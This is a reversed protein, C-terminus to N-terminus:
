RTLSEHRKLPSVVTKNQYRFAVEGDRIYFVQVNIRGQPTTVPILDGEAYAKGNVVALSVQGTSISTVNFDQPTIVPAPPPTPAVVINTKAKVDTAVVGPKQWGIDWFPNRSVKGLKYESHNKIKLEEVTQASAFTASFGIVLLAIAAIRKNM